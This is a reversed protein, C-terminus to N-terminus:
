RGARSVWRASRRVPATRRRSGRVDTRGAGPVDTPGAGAGGGAVGAASRRRLGDCAVVREDSRGERCPRTRARHRNSMSTSGSVPTAPTSVSTSWCSTPRVSTSAWWSRRRRGRGGRERAVAIWLALVAAAALPVAAALARRSRRPAAHRPAAALIRTVLAPEPEVSVAGLLLDVEQAEKWLARAAASRGILAQAAAREAEPWREPQAGYADLLNRLRELTISSTMMREWSHTPWRRLQARLTRRGRALLSELAEVSVEM